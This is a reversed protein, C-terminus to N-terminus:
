PIEGLALIRLATEKTMRLYGFARGTDADWFRTQFIPSPDRIQVIGKPVAQDKSWSGREVGASRCIDNWTLESEGKEGRVHRIAFIKSLKKLLAKRHSSDETM